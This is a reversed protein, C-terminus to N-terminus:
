NICIQNYLRKCQLELVEPTSNNIIGFDARLLKEEMAAQASIRRASERDSWGRARLRSQQTSSSCWVSIIAQFDNEWVAEYLLPVAAFLPGKNKRAEEKIENRVFPHVLNNLWNLEDPNHFVQKAIFPRNVTGEETLSEKGWREFLKAKLENNTKYLHHVTRDADLTAAGLKKFCDLVTSKGSGAGGTIGITKM